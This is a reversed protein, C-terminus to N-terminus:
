RTHPVEAAIGHRNVLERIQVLVQLQARFALEIRYLSYGIAFFGVVLVWEITGM